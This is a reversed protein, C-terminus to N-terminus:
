SVVDLKIAGFILSPEVICGECLVICQEEETCGTFYEIGVALSRELSVEVLTAAENTDMRSRGTQDIGSKINFFKTCGEIIM